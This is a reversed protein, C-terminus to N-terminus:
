GVFHWADDTAEVAIGIPAGPALQADAVGGDTANFLAGVDELIRYTQVITQPLTWSRKDTIYKKAAAGTVIWKQDTELRSCSHHDHGHGVM